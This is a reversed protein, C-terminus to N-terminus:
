KKLPKGNDNRGKSKRSRNEFCKIAMSRLAISFFADGACIKYAETNKFTEVTAENQKVEGNSLDLYCCSALARTFDGSEQEKALDGYFYKILPNGMEMEFLELAKLTLSFTYNEFTPDLEIPEGDQVGYHEIEFIYKLKEM